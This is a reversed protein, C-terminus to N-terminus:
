MRIRTIAIESILRYKRRSLCIWRGIKNASKASTGSAFIIKGINRKTSFEGLSRTPLSNKMIVPTQATAKM